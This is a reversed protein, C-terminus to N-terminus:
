RPTLRVRQLFLNRDEGNGLADNIFALGLRHQGEPIHLVGAEMEKTTPSNLEITSVEQGDLLVKVESYVGGVASSYGRLTLAYAGAVACDFSAEVLGNNRLTIQAPSLESYASQGVLRFRPLPIDLLGTGLQPTSFHASLNALLSSVYRSGKLRNESATDWRIGDLILRGQGIPVSLLSGPLCLVRTGAPYAAPGGVALSNLRAAKGGSSEAFAIRIKCRGAPLEALTTYDRHEDSTLRLTASLVDNVRVELLPFVDGQAIGSAEVTLLHLGAVRNNVSFSVSGTNGIQVTRETGPLSQADEQLVAEAALQRTAKGIAVPLFARDASTLPSTQQNWNRPPTTYTIDERAIGSLLPDERRYIRAGSLLSEVRLHLNLAAGLRSLAETDPAHWYITGGARGYAALAAVSPTSAGHLIILRTDQSYENRTQTASRAEATEFNLGIATLRQKFAVDDSLVLTKSRAPLPLASLYNLANQLLQQAVPELNLKQGALVQMVVVHGAGVPMEVIPAHALAGPGGSVTVARAGLTAPRVIERRTVYHDGRWFKLDDATVGNLIPHSRRLPFTMTSAHEVLQLELGLSDLSSQELILARGGRRVFHLFPATEFEPTLAAPAVLLITRAADARALSQLSKVSHPWKGTPDYAVVQTNRPTVLTRRPEVRLSHAVRHVERGNALLVSDLAVPLTRETRLAQFTLIVERHGGADLALPQSAILRKTGRQRLQLELKLPKPSDNFVDFRLLFPQGSFCRTDRNRVFAAVHRYFEKDSHESGWPTLGSVGARRYAITQDFWARQVALRHFRARDLYAEDGFYVSGPSYDGYPVWLYEGIYLPKKRDWFFTNRTTGLLGGGAETVLEQGLWDGANPYDFVTPLERPYHLGIVNYAGDPDLDAEFTIPHLPDLSRAFRGIDGLKKPLQADYRINGMFLIENGLSRVVLSAHNRSRATMGAVVDRYNKWFREDTYGYMGSSDTYLPSEEVIMLGMEDAVDFWAENWPGIHLRFANVHTEKLAKIRQRIVAESQGNLTPWTSAALLHRKVGNLYFDPGQTWFEKFGFRQPLIDVVPGNQGRRLRVRLQLLHPNEPTWLPANPFPASLSWTKDVRVPQAAVELVRHAGDLVQADIWLNGGRLNDSSANVAGRLTLSKQRTSPQIVLSSDVVSDRPLSKLWINDWPGVTEKWGGIPSLVKGRLADENESERWVFGPPLVATMDQCRLELRHAQGPKVMDTIDCLFPALGNFQSGAFKGDVYLHPDFRAGRVDVVIRRGAWTAPISIDRRLWLFHAGNRPPIWAIGPVQREKWEGEPAQHSPSQTVLDRWTGNLSIQQRLTSGTQTPHVEQAETLQPFALWCMCQILVAVRALVTKGPTNTNTM